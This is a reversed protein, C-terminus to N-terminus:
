SRRPPVRGVRDTFVHAPAVTSACADTVSCPGCRRLQCFSSSCPWTSQAAIRVAAVPADLWPSLTYFMSVIHPPLPQLVVVPYPCCLSWPAYRARGAPWHPTEAIAAASAAVDRDPCPWASSSNPWGLHLLIRAGLSWALHRRAGARPSRACEALGGSTFSM